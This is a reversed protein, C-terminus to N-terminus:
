ITDNEVLSKVAGLDAPWPDEADPHFRRGIERVAEAVLHIAEHSAHDHGHYSSIAPIRHGTAPTVVQFRVAIPRHRKNRRDSLRYEDAYLVGDVSYERTPRGYIIARGSTAATSPEELYYLGEERLLQSINRGGLAIRVVNSNIGHFAAPTILTTMDVGAFPNEADDHYTKGIEFTVTFPAQAGSAAEGTTTSDDAM